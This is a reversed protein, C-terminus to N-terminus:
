RPSSRRRVPSSHIRIRRQADAAETLIETLEVMLEPLRGADVFLRLGVMCDEVLSELEDQTAPEGGAHALARQMVSEVLIPSIYRRMTARVDDLAVLTPVL